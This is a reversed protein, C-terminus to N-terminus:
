TASSTGTHAHCARRPSSPVPPDDATRRRGTAGARRRRVAVWLLAASTALLPTSAEPVRITAAEFQVTDFGTGSLGFGETLDGPTTSGLLTAVGPALATLEVTALLVDTGLIGSTMTLGALGDGDPAAVGIWLPGVAPSPSAALIAPAVDLDLGFAVIPETLDALVDVLVTDGVAVVDASPELRVITLAATPKAAAVAVLLACSVAIRAGLAHHM